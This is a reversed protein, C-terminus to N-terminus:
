LLKGSSSYRTDCRKEGRREEKRVEDPNMREEKVRESSKIKKNRGCIEQKQRQQREQLHSDIQCLTHSDGLCPYIISRIRTSIINIIVGGGWLFFCYEQLSVIIITCQLCVATRPAM